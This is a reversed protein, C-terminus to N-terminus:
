RRTLVVITECLAALAQARLRLKGALARYEAPKMKEGQGKAAIEAADEAECARSCHLGPLNESALRASVLVRRLGGRVIVIRRGRVRQQEALLASQGLQTM